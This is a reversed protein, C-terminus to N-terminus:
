MNRSTKPLLRFALVLALGLGVAPGPTSEPTATFPTVTASFQPTPNTSTFVQPAAGTLEIAFVSGAGSPDSTPLPIQTPDLLFFAFSDPTSGTAYATTVDLVFTTFTGFTVPQLWENFFQDAILTLPGPTLSGTVDGSTSASGLTADTSFDTVKATNDQFPIGGILDFALYGTTGSVPATAITVTYFTDANLRPSALLGFLAASAILTCNKIISNNMKNM